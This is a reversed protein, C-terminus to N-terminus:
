LRIRLISMNFLLPCKLLATLALQLSCEVPARMISLAGGSFIPNHIKDHKFKKM